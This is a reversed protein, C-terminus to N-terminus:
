SSPFIFDMYYSRMGPIKREMHSLLILYPSFRDIRAISEKKSEQDLFIKVITLFPISFFWNKAM